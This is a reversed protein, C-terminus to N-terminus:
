KDQIVDALYDLVSIIGYGVAITAIHNKEEPTAEAYTKKSLSEAFAMGEQLLDTTYKNLAPNTPM